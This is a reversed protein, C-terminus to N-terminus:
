RSSSCQALVAISWVADAPLNEDSRVISSYAFSIHCRSFTVRYNTSYVIFLRVGFYFLGWFGDELIMQPDTGEELAMKVLDSVRKGQGRKLSDIIEDITAGM